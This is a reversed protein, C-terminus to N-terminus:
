QWSRCSAIARAAVNEVVRGVMLRSLQVHSAKLAIDVTLQEEEMTSRAVSMVSTLRCVTYQEDQLIATGYNYTARLLHPFHAISINHNDRSM